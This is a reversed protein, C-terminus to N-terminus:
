PRHEAGRVFTSFNRGHPDGQDRVDMRIQGRKFGAQRRRLPQLGVPKGEEAIEHAIPRVGFGDDVPHPRQDLRAGDGDEAIM